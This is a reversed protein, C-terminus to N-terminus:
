EEQSSRRIRFKKMKNNFYQVSNDVISSTISGGRSMLTSPTTGQSGPHPAKFSFSRRKPQIDMIEDEQTDIAHLNDSSSGSSSVLQDEETQPISYYDYGIYATHIHQRRQPHHHHHDHDQDVDNSRHLSEKEKEQQQQQQQSSSSSQPILLPPPPPSLPPTLTMNRLDVDQGNEKLTQIHHQTRCLERQLLPQHMCCWLSSSSSPTTNTNCDNDIGNQLVCNIPRLHTNSTNTTTAAAREEGEGKDGGESSTGRREKKQYISPLQKLVKRVYENYLSQLIENKIYNRCKHTLELSPLQAYHLQITLHAPLNIEDISDLTLYKLYIAHWLEINQSVLYKDIDLIFELNEQCHIQTLHKTFSHLNIYEDECESNEDYQDKFKTNMIVDQLTPIDRLSLNPTTAPHQSLLDSPPSSPLTASKPTQLQNNFDNYHTYYNNPIRRNPTFTTNITNITSITNSKNRVSSEM